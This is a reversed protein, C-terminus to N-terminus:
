MQQAEMGVCVFLAPQQKWQYHCLRKCEAFVILYIEMGHTPCSNLRWTKLPFHKHDQIVSFPQMVFFILIIVRSPTAPNRCFQTLHWEERFKLPPFLVSNKKFCCSHYDLRGSLACRIIAWGRHGISCTQVSLCLERLYIGWIYTNYPNEVDKPLCHCFM